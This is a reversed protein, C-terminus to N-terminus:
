FQKPYTHAGRAAGTQVGAGATNPLSCPFCWGPQVCPGIESWQRAPWVGCCEVKALGAVSITDTFVACCLVACCLVARALQSPTICSIVGAVPVCLRRWCSAQPQMEPFCIAVASGSSVNQWELFICIRQQQM